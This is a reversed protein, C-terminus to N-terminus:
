PLGCDNVGDVGFEVCNDGDGVGDGSVTGGEEGVRRGGEGGGEGGGTITGTKAVKGTIRTYIM